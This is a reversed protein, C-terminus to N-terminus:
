CAAAGEKQPVGAAVPTRTTMRWSRTASYAEWMRSYTGQMAILEDHRGSERIRGNEMVLIRNARAISPLRHAIVLVTKGSLLNALGQQIEAESEPDAFATAEDLLVVPANKLAMRALSIRQRQGGSLHVAQGAGILTDYGNPLSEIFRDCCAMRAAAKVADEDAQDSGLRINDAITGSFIFPQQFVVAMSKALETPSFEDLAIGGISIFGADPKEMGAMVAALTSKGSGSPGVIATVTGAGALFSVNDLIKGGEYSLSLSNVELDATIIESQKRIGTRQVPADMLKQLSAYGSIAKFLMSTFKVLRNLPAFIVVGLMLFLMIEDFPMANALHLVAGAVALVAFPFTTVTLFAVWRYKFADRMELQMSRFQEIALRMRSFSQASRNFIKIDPMGQAFEVADAHLLNLSHAYRGYLDTTQATKMSGAHIAVALAVIAFLLLSMPVSVFFLAVICVLPLLLSAIFDTINHAIFNEIQSVDHTLVKKLEGTSKGSFWHLPAKGLHELVTASVTSSLSFAAKHSLVASTIRCVASALIAAAAILCPAAPLLAGTGDALFHRLILWGMFIPVPMLLAGLAALFASLCLQRMGQPALSSLRSVAPPLLM